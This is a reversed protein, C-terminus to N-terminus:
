PSGKPRPQADTTGCCQREQQRQIFRWVSLGATRVKGLYRTDVQFLFQLFGELLKVKQQSGSDLARPLWSSCGGPTM